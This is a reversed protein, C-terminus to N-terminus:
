IWMFYHLARKLNSASHYHIKIAPVHLICAHSYEFCDLVHCESVVIYWNLLLLTGLLVVAAAVELISQEATEASNLLKAM